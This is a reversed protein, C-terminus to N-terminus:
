RRRVLHPRIAARLNANGLGPPDGPGMATEAIGCCTVAMARAQHLSRYTDGTAEIRGCPLSRRDGLVSVHFDDAQRNM